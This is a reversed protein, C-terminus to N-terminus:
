CPTHLLNHHHHQVVVMHLALPLLLTLPVEAMHLAVVLLLAVSGQVKDLAKLWTSLRSLWKSLLLLM